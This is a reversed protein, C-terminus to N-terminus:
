THLTLLLYSIAFAVCVLLLTTAISHRTKNPIRDNAMLNLQVWSLGTSVILIVLSFLLLNVPISGTLSTAHYLLPASLIMCSFYTLLFSLLDLGYRDFEKSIKAYIFVIVLYLLIMLTVIIPLTRFIDSARLSYLFYEVVITAALFPLPPLIGATVFLRQVKAEAADHHESMTRIKLANRQAIDPYLKALASRDPLNHQDESDIEHPAALYHKDMYLLIIARLSMRSTSHPPCQIKGNSYQITLPNNVRSVRSTLM